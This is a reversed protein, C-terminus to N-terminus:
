SLSRAYAVDSAVIDGAWFRDSWSPGPESGLLLLSDRQASTMVGAQVLGGILQQVDSSAVDLALGARLMDVMALCASRVFDNVSRTGDDVRARFGSATSWRLLASVPIPRLVNPGAANLLAVVEANTKNHCDPEALRAKLRHYDSM